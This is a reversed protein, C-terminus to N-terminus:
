CKKDGFKRKYIHRALKRVCEREEEKTITTKLFANANLFRKFRIKALVLCYLKRMWRGGEYHTTYQTRRQTNYRM